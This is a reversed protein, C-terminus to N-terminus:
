KLDFIKDKNVEQIATMDYQFLCIITMLLISESDSKVM